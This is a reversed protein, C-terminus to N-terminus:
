YGRKSGLLAAWIRKNCCMASDEKKKIKETPGFLLQLADKLTDSRGRSERRLYESCYSFSCSCNKQCQGKYVKFFFAYMQMRLLFALM